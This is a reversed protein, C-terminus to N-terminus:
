IKYSSFQFLLLLLQNNNHNTKKCWMRGKIVLKSLPTQSSEATERIQMQERLITIEHDREDVVKMLLNFKREMEEMAAEAMIDAMMVSIVDPHAEKKSKSFASDFNNYLLNEKIVIEAKPFEM